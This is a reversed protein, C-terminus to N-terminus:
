VWWRTVEAKVLETRKRDLMKAVDIVDIMMGLLGDYGLKSGSGVLQRVSKIVGFTLVVM